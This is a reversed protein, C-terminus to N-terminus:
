TRWTSPNQALQFPQSTQLIIPSTAGCFSEEQPGKFSILHTTDTIQRLTTKTNQNIAVAGTEGGIWSTNASWFLLAISGCIQQKGL